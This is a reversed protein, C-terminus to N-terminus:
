ALQNKTAVTISTDEIVRAAAPEKGDCTMDELGYIAHDM